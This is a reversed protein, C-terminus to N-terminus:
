TPARSWSPRRRRRYFCRFHGHDTGTATILRVGTGTFTFSATDGVTKTRTLTGSAASSDAVQSLSGTYTIASSRDDHSFGTTTAGRPAPLLATTFTTETTDNSNALRMAYTRVGNGTVSGQGAEAQRAYIKVNSGSEVVASPAQRTRAAVRTSGQHLLRNRQVSAKPTLTRDETIGAGYDYSTFGPPAASGVGTPAAM